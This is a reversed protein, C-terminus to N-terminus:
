KNILKNVLLTIGDPQKIDKHLAYNIERSLYFSYMMMIDYFYRLCTHLTNILTYKHFLAALLCIKVTVENLKRVLEICGKLLGYCLVINTVISLSM